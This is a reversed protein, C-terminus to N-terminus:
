EKAKARKRAKKAQKGLRRVEEVAQDVSTVVGNHGYALSIGKLAYLQLQTVNREKGPMKAELGFFMGYTCGLIDPIGARQHPGGHIKRAWTHPLENLAKVMKRTLQSENM